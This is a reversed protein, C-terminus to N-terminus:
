NWTGTYTQTVSTSDNTITYNWTISGSAYTGIGAVVYHNNDPKQSVITITNGAVTANINHTFFNDSFSTGILVDTTATGASINATYSAVFTGGVLHDTASWSKTFKTRSMTECSTGEYGTPCVCTGDSCTGGNQCTVDKCADKSCSTSFIATASAVTVLASLAILRLTKM